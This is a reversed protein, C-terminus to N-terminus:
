NFRFFLTDADAEDYVYSGKGSNATNIIGLVAGDYGIPVCFSFEGNYTMTNNSWDSWEGDYLCSCETYNVGNYSVTWCGSGDDNGAAWSEIEYYNTYWYSISPLYIQANKDDYVITVHVTRWEYGEPTECAGEWPCTEDIRYNSFTLHGITEKSKDNLCATVYDYTVGEEANIILGHEEFSATLPEGEKEGCGSCTKPEQYNADVWTHGLPEGETEGCATCTKPETCTAEQWEHKMHCGTLSICATLMTAVLTFGKKM